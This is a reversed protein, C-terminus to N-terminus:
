DATTVLIPEAATEAAPPSAPPLALHAPPASAPDGAAPAAAARRLRRCFEQYTLIEFSGQDDEVLATLSEVWDGSNLYHIDGIRKDAPTHIHGCIVGQCRYAHALTRLQDEFNSVFNVAHKVRAKVAKAFSFYERGRWARYHNYFRNIRLLTQYGIAGLLALYRHRQTVADFVDGHVVLYRGRPTKHIYRELIRLRHLTLPLFKHLLDDHNGRLYIVETDRKELKKLVLRVFRTHAPQWGGRRLLSWGDIIDGNLILKESDTHKLFDNVEDIRCEPTGLHVDSLVITKFRLRPKKAM